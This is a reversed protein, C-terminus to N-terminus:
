ICIYKKYLEINHTRYITNIINIISLILMYFIYVLIEFVILSVFRMGM